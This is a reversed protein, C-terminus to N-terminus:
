RSRIARLATAEFGGGARGARRGQARVLEELRAEAADVGSERRVRLLEAELRLLLARGPSAAVRGREEMLAARRREFGELKGALAARRGDDAARLAASLGEVAQEVGRLEVEVARLRAGEPTREDAAAAHRHEREVRRVDPHARRLDRIRERQVFAPDRRWGPLQGGLWARFGAADIRRLDTTRERLMARLARAGCAVRAPSDSM